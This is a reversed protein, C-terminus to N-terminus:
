LKWHQVLIKCNPRTLSGKFMLQITVINKIFSFSLPLCNAALPLMVWLRGVIYTTSVSQVVATYGNVKMPAQAYATTRPTSPLLM